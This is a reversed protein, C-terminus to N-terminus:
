LLFEIPTEVSRLRKFIPLLAISDQLSRRVRCCGIAELQSLQEFFFLSNDQSGKLAHERKFNSTQLTGRADNTM